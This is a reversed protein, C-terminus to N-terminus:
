HYDEYNLAHVHGNLFQFTLRWNKNVSISWIGKKDGKLPHLAYSPLALDNIEAATDLASLQMRLRHRHESNIGSANGTEFFRKLGKHRFSIIM